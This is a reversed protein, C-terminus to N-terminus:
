NEKDMPINCIHQINYEELDIMEVKQFHKLEVIIGRSIGFEKNKAHKLARLIKQEEAKM